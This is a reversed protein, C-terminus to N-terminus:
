SEKRSLKCDKIISNFKRSFIKIEKRQNRKFNNLSIFQDDGADAGNYNVDLNKLQRVFEM